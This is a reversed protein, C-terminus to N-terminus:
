ELSLLKEHPTQSHKGRPPSVESINRLLDDDPLFSSLKGTDGLAKRGLGTTRPQAPPRQSGLWPEPGPLLGHHSASGPQSKPAATVEESASFGGPTLGWRFGSNHTISAAWLDRLCLGLTYDSALTRCCIPSLGLVQTGAQAGRNNRDGGAGHPDGADAGVDGRPAAPHRSGALGQLPPSLSHFQVGQAPDAGFRSQRGM